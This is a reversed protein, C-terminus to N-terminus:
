RLIRLEIIKIQLCKIKFGTIKFCSSGLSEMRCNQKEFVRLIMAAQLNVFAAEQTRDQSIQVYAVHACYNKWLLKL